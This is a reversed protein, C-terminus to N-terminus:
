FKEGEEWWSKDRGSEPIRDPDSQRNRGEASCLACAETLQKKQGAASDASDQKRHPAPPLLAHRGLEAFERGGPMRSTEEKGKLLYINKPFPTKRGQTLIFFLLITNEELKNFQM